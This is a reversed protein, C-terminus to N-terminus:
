DAMLRGYPRLEPVNDCVAKIGATIPVALVLGMAGWLWGWFMLAVTVVVPNLHVRSGVLKPYLVNIAIIHLGVVASVIAVLPAVSDYRAVGALLPPLAALPVGLYPVVSLFGSVPGMVAPYPLGMLWFFLGSVVSLIVAIILNGIVFGRIMTTIGDVTKEAALRNGSGFLSVSNRRLHEKWTLMFYVLFPVFSVMFAMEYVSRLGAGLYTSVESGSSGAPTGKAPADEIVRRTHKEIEEAKQRFRLVHARLKTSYKPFDAVFNQGQAYFMYFLLYFVGLLLLVMLFAALGRPLGRRTLRTVGPECVFVLLLSVVVTMVFSSAVYLCALVVAAAVLKQGRGRRREAIEQALM